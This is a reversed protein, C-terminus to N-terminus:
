GVREPDRLVHLTEARRQIRGAYPRDANPGIVAITKIKNPDLPAIDGDNKLLTITERAAQLALERHAPLGRCKRRMRIWM